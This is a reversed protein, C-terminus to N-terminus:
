SGPDDTSTDTMAKRDQEKMVEWEGEMLWRGNQGYSSTKQGNYYDGEALGRVKRTSGATDRGGEWEQSRESNCQQWNQSLQAKSYSEKHLLAESCCNLVGEFRLRYHTKCFLHLCLHVHERLLFAVSKTQISPNWQAQWLWFHCIYSISAKLFCFMKVLPVTRKVKHITSGMVHEESYYILRNLNKQLRFLM